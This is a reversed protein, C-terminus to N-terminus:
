LADSLLLFRSWTEFRDCGARLRALPAFGDESLADELRRASPQELDFLHVIGLHVQGVPTADDNILGLLREQYPAEIRVEELVERRMGTQYADVGVSGDESCIHGGIGISQLAHLRKEGGSSGRVYHFVQDRWRLVV